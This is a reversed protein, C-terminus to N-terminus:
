KKATLTTPPLSTSPYQLSPWIRTHAPTPMGFMDQDATASVDQINTEGLLTPDYTFTIGNYEIQVNTPPKTASHFSDLIPQVESQVTAFSDATEIEFRYGSNDVMAFLYTTGSLGCPTDPFIM